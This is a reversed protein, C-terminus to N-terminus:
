DRSQGSRQLVPHVVKLGLVHASGARPTDVMEGTYMNMGVINDSDMDSFYVTDEFM